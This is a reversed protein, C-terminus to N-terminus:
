EMKCGKRLNEHKWLPQLNAYHFCIKQQEFDTLDFSACPRIHDIDWEKGHNEWSMGPKFQAELHNRLEQYSCGLLIKLNSHKYARQAHLAKYLRTGLRTRVYFAPDKALRQKVYVRAYEKRKRKHKDKNKIYSVHAIAKAKELNNARWTRANAANREPNAQKWAKAYAIRQERHAAYNKARQAAANHTPTM